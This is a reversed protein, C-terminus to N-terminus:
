HATAAVYAGGLDGSKLKEVCDRVRSAYDTGPPGYSRVGAGVSGLHNIKQGLFRSAVQINQAPNLRDYAGVCPGGHNCPELQMLGEAYHSDRGALTDFGSNIGSPVGSAGLHSERFVICDILENCFDSRNNAAVLSMVQGATLIFQNRYTVIGGGGGGGSHLGPALVLFPPSLVGGGGGGGVSSIGGAADRAGGTPLNGVVLTCITGPGCFTSSLGLPDVFTTPNNLAYAYRNLSQPNTVDGGLPDPSLSPGLDVQNGAECASM